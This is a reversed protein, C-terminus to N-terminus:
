LLISKKKLKKYSILVQGIETLQKINEGKITEVEFKSLDQPRESTPVDQQNDLLADLGKYKFILFLYTM